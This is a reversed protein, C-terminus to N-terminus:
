LNLHLELLQEGGGAWAAFDPYFPLRPFDQKLNQAYAARYHPDHLVAYAYHFIDEGSLSADGYHTRFQALGWATINPQKDGNKNTIYLPVLQRITRYFALRYFRCSHWYRFRSLQM